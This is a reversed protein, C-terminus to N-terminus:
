GLGPGDGPLVDAISRSRVWGPPLGAQLAALLLRALRHSPDASLAESARFMATSGEGSWWALFALLTLPAPTRERTAHAVVAELVTTAARVRERDPRQPDEPDVVAAIARSTSADDEALRAPDRPGGQATTAALAEYGPVLALLVGDRVHRDELGAALRGLLAAPLDAGRRAKGVAEVWAAFSRRRWERATGADDASVDSARAWRDAARRVLARREPAARPVRYLAEPSPLPARGELVLQASPVTSELLTVPFGEAPCCLPDDCDLSRYRQEGVVWSECQPVHEGLRAAFARAAVLPGTGPAVDGTTYVVVYAIAARDEAARSAVLEAVETRSRPARLDDLATRATLGLEGDARICVVVLSESPQYGLAFPVVSLLDRASRVRVPPTPPTATRPPTM